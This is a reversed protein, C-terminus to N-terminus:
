SILLFSWDARLQVIPVFEDWKFWANMGISIVGKSYKRKRKIM